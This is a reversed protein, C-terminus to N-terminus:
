LRKMELVHFHSEELFVVDIDESKKLEIIKKCDGSNTGDERGKITYQSARKKGTTQIYDQM